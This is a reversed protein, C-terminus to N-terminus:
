APTAGTANSRASRRTATAATSRSRRRQDRAGGDRDRVAEGDGSRERDIRRRRLAPRGPVDARAGGRDADGHRRAQLPDGPVDGIPRGFQVREQAYALSDELAGRALGIARAATHIRAVNLGHMTANFARGQATAAHARTCAHARAGLLTDAPVRLGDFVLHFTTIGYYGIKDIPTGTLGKPFRDREKEILFSELGRSRNEGQAPDATRALLMIFDAALANGCWRKEGTIVYEDGDRTARCQM